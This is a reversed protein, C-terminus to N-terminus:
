EAPEELALPTTDISLTLGHGGQRSTAFPAATVRIIQDDSGTTETTPANRRTAEICLEILSSIGEPVPCNSLHLGTAPLAELGLLDLGGRSAQQIQLAEDVMFLPSVVTDFTAKMENSVRELSAANVQLEENVTILEENTSQLEENSTELEENSAQMEENTSQLEENASQLEENSTQLEEVTQQLAERMSHMEREIESIYDIREQDTLADLDRSHDLTLEREEINFAFTYEGSRDLRIPYCTLRTQVSTQGVVHIWSGTRKEGSRQAIAILNMADERLPARLLRINMRLSSTSTLEIVDSLEGLVRVIEGSRTALFGRKIVVSLLAEFMENNPAEDTDRKARGSIQRSTLLSYEANAGTSSIESRERQSLRRKIYVKDTGSASEFYAELAAVTESTGLFLLGNDALAYHLRTLVKEQLAANFYILVNRLSIIDINLFPPDQFVNHESFLICSRLQPHVAIRDKDLTFYRDRYEEPIDQLATIPYTGARAVELARTDIDTAFIQIENGQLASIGGLMEALIIAISYAEEGTAVGAVWIRLPRKTTREVLARVATTLQEYQEPDRFFRTVSILLDRHLADVEDPNSRCHAVYADYDVIGLAAMRRSIRRNVTNEKYERFDVRTRALLIQLLDTLRTPQKSLERLGAWDRPRQLIRELHTGIQDPSLTLDVCGTEVASNPMGDYKATASDQAITIGGAERIAQVGYSGDSGTGSLVIGVCNEGQDEALSKFLRDGSPKPSAPHGSPPVLKLQGGEVIVDSNPPTIYITDPKPDTTGEIEIVDLQTERALLTTLLSKHSPSMHQAVVYIAPSTKPLSQLLGSIAELGGASAALAVIVNKQESLTDPM